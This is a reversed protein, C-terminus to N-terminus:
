FDSGDMLEVEIMESSAMEENVNRIKTGREKMNMGLNKEYSNHISVTEKSGSYLVEYKVCHAPPLCSSMTASPSCLTLQTPEPIQVLNGGRLHEVDMNTSRLGFAPTKYGAPDASGPLRAPSWTLLATPLFSIKLVHKM